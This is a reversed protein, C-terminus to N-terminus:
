MEQQAQDIQDAVPTSSTQIKAAKEKEIKEINEREKEGKEIDQQM